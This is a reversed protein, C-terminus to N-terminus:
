AKIVWAEARLDVFFVLDDIQWLIFYTAGNIGSVRKTADVSELDHGSDNEWCQVAELHAGVAGM